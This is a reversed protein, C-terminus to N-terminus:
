VPHLGKSLWQLRFVALSIRSYVPFKKKKRNPIFLFSDLQRSRGELYEVRVRRRVKYYIVVWVGVWFVFFVAALVLNM